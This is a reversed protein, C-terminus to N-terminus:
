TNIREEYKHDWNHGSARNVGVGNKGIVLHAQAVYLDIAEVIVVGQGKVGALEVREDEVYCSVDEDGLM